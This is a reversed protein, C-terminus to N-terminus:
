RYIAKVRGWTSRVTPTPASDLQMSALAAAEGVPTQLSCSGTVEANPIFSETCKVPGAGPAYHVSGRTESRSTGVTNGNADTCNSFGYDIVYDVRYCGSFTGAPVTAPEIAAITGHLYVNTALDPVLQLTFQHGITLDSVLWVWARTDALNCRWAAIEDPTKRFAFEGDLLLTHSGSPAYEPCPADAAAQIIRNRLDPRAVWLQRLFPDPVASEFATAVAIGSLLEQRLYQAAIGNPAVTTGDFFL